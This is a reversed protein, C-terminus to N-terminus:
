RGKIGIIPIIPYGGRTNTIEIVQFDAPVTAGNVTVKVNEIQGLSKVCRQDAGCLRMTSQKYLEMDIEEMLWSSMVNVSSGGDVLCGQIHYNNIVAEVKPAKLDPRNKASAM